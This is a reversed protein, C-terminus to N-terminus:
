TKDILQLVQNATKKWNFFKAQKLGKERYYNAVKHDTMQIIANKLDNIDHSNILIAANDCIESLSSNNSTIVPCGCAMAELIPFGFGEYHSPFIFMQALNYFYRKENEPIYNIWITSRLDLITSTSWGKAGVIVLKFNSNTEQRFLEFARVLSDINKRPEKTGLFFIFKEPLKYKQKIKKLKPNDKPIIKYHPSIGSYIMKTNKIIGGKDNRGYNYPPSFDTLDRETNKSVAIVQKANKLKIEPKMIKHWIKRKWNLFEPFYKYSLDHCTIIYPCDVSFFSINPFFFLDITAVNLMQCKVKSKKVLAPHNVRNVQNVQNVKREILRDLRPRKFLVLCLNLLKNPWNFKVYHVNDHKFIPVTVKRHSNYFLYYQNKDDIEFLDKLLNHTYEGVGTIEKDMLCRIDIAINM